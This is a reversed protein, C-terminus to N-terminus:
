RPSAGLRHSGPRVDSPLLRSSLVWKYCWLNFLRKIIRCTRFTWKKQASASPTPSGNRAQAANKWWNDPIPRREFRRNGHRVAGMKGDRQKIQDQRPRQDDQGQDSQDPHHPRRDFPAPFLFSIQAPKIQDFVAVVVMMMVVSVAMMVLMPMAMVAVVTMLMPIMGMVTMIRASVLAASRRAAAIGAAVAAAPVV